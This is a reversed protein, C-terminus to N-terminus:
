INSIDMGAEKRREVDEVITGWPPCGKSRAGIRGNKKLILSFGDEIPNIGQSVATEVQVDDVAHRSLIHAHTLFRIGGRYPIMQLSIKVDPPRTLEWMCDVKVRFLIDRPMGTRTM